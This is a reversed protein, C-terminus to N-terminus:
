NIFQNKRELIEVAEKQYILDEYRDYEEKFAQATHTEGISDSGYMDQYPIAVVVVDELPSRWLQGNQRTTDVSNIGAETEYPHAATPRQNFSENKVVTSATQRRAAQILRIMIVHVAEGCCLYVRRERDEQPCYVNEAFYERTMSYLVDGKARHEGHESFFDSFQDEGIIPTRYVGFAHRFGDDIHSSPTLLVEADGSVPQLKDAAHPPHVTGQFTVLKKRNPQHQEHRLRQCVRRLLVHLVQSSATGSMCVPFLHDKSGIQFKPGSGNVALLTGGLARFDEVAQALPVGDESLGGHQHTETFSEAAREAGPKYMGVGTLRGM